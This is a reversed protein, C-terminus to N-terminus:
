RKRLRKLFLTTSCGCGLSFSEFDRSDRSGNNPVNSAGFLCKVAFGIM